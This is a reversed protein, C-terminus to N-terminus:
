RFEQNCCPCKKPYVAKELSRNCNPCCWSIFAYLATFVIIILSPLMFQRIQLGLFIGSGEATKILVFALLIIAVVAIINNWFNKRVRSKIENETM